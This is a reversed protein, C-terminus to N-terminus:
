AFSRGPQVTLQRAALVLFFTAVALGSITAGPATDAHYSVVLGAAVCGCGILVATLMAVPVHRSVLSATAPPGILLGFVLLTGVTQFSVVISITLLVMLAAHALGPRQGLTHAKDRSFVLALFPRHLVAAAVVVVTTGIAQTVLDSASVGLAAGFLLTSAEAAFDQTRSLVVIGLALMGVFLLGISTDERVGSRASLGSVALAMFLAAGLAGLVPSFGVAVAIAIGPIVGHALADGLFAMGRMVIWTGVVSCAIATLLGGVLARQMFGAEFVETLWNL